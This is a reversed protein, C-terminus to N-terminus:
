KLYLMLLSEAVDNSHLVNEESNLLQGSPEINCRLKLRHEKSARPLDVQGERQPLIEERNNVYIYFHSAYIHM